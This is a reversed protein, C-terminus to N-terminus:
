SLKNRLKKIEERAEDLYLSNPFKELLKEYMEVAKQVNNTGFQYVEGILYLAKDAYINKITEDAIGTLLEISKDYNDMAIEMEAERIRSFDKLIFARPNEAIMKYKGAAEEFKSQEALFDAQSFMVLNSSDTMKPNLIISLQIADNASNDKLDNLIEELAARSKAFDAQFFYIRALNFKASNRQEESAKANLSVKLFDTEANELNGKKLEIEGLKQYAGVSFSSTKSDNVIKKFYEEAESPLSQLELKIEGIRFLAENAIETYPYSKALDNYASTIDNATGSEYGKFNYYPKWAPIVKAAELRLKEELTKAYGLKANPIFPSEPYRNIIESYAKGAADYEQQNFVIQAFNFLEAGKNKQKSDIDLYLDFAGDFNKKEIYLRALLYKFALVEGTDWAEVAQITKELADPKGTYALIRSEIINLQNPEKSLIFCYEGAAETYQMTLTYINALEYSYAVPDEATEKGKKLYEAAKEFARREIAYNALMRYVSSNGPFKKAAQDWTKYADAENGSQYYTSGLLGYLNIDEPSFKLRENIIKISGEYDKTSLCMRNLADFFQYNEPQLKYLEQYISKAKEFDGTQEFNQGLMFKNNLNNGTQAFVSISLFFLLISHKM